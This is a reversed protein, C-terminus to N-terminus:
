VQYLCPDYYVKGQIVLDDIKQGWDGDGFKVNNSGGDQGSM